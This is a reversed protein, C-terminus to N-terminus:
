QYRLPPKLLGGGRGALLIQVGETTPIIAHEFAHWKWHQLLDIEWSMKNGLEAGAGVAVLNPASNANVEIEVGVWLFLLILIGAFSLGLEFETPAQLVTLIM